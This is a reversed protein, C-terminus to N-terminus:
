VNFNIFAPVIVIILVVMLMLFMPLLLKTGAEEGKIKAMAVRESVAEDAEKILAEGMHNRGKQLSQEILSVFRRYKRIKCNSAFENYASLEGKGDTMAAEAKLMEEFAYRREGGAVLSRRYDACIEKWISRTHMGASYYLAYRNVIRPYDLEMQNNREETKKGLDRDFSIFIMIAAFVSLILIFFPTSKDETSYSVSVGNVSSPLKLSEQQRSTENQYSISDRVEEMFKEKIGSRPLYLNVPFEQQLEYDDYTLVMTIKVILSEKGEKELEGKLKDINISGNRDLVLPKDSKWEIRFPYENVQNPMYLNTEIHDASTNEGLIEKTLLSILEESKKEIEEDSYRRKSVTINIKESEDLSDSELTLNYNKDMGGYDDREIRNESDIVPKIKDSLSCIFALISGIFILLVLYKIKKEIYIRTRVRAEKEPYLLRMENEIKETLLKDTLKERIKKSRFFLILITGSIATIAAFL